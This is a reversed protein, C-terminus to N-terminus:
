YISRKNISSFPNFVWQFTEIRKILAEISVQGAWLILLKLLEQMTEIREILAEISVEQYQHYHLCRVFITEIREIM